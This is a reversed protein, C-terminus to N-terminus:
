DNDLDLNAIGVVDGTSINEVWVQLRQDNRQGRITYSNGAQVDIAVSVYIRREAAFQQYIYLVGVQHIGPSLIVKPDQDFTFAFNSSYIPLGDVNVARVGAVPIFKEMKSTNLIASSNKDLDPEQYTKINQDSACSPILFVSLLIFICVAFKQYKM